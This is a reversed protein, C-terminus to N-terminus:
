GPPVLSDVEWVSLTDTDPFPLSPVLMDELLRAGPEPPPAPGASLRVIIRTGSWRPPVAMADTYLYLQSDPVRVDFGDRDLQLALGSTFYGDYAVPGDVLLSAGPDFHDGVARAFAPLPESLRRELAPVSLMSVIAVACAGTLFTTTLVAASSPRRHVSGPDDSPGPVLLRRLSKTGSWVTFATLSVAAVHSPFMFWPQLSQGTVNALGATAALLGITSIGIGVVEDRARRRHAAIGAIVVVVALGPLRPSQEKLFEDYPPQSRAWQPPFALESRLVKVADDVARSGAQSDNRSEAVIRLPNSSRGNAVMDILMPSILALGVAFAGIAPAVLQRLGTRGSRLLTSRILLAAATGLVALAFPVFSLHAGSCWAALGASLPLLRREGLAVRWAVFVLVLGTVLGLNPNWPTILIGVDGVAAIAVLAALALVALSELKRRALMWTLFTLWAGNWWIAAALGASSRQGTLQYPLWQLVYVLPLPHNYGRQASYPGSLPISRDFNRIVLEAVAWDGVPIWTSGLHAIGALFFVLGVAAPNAFTSRRWVPEASCDPNLPADDVSAPVGQSTAMAASRPRHRGAGGVGHGAGDPCRYLHCTYSTTANQFRM